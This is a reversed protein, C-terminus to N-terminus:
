KDCRLWVTETSVGGGQFEAGLELLYLGPKKLEALSIPIGEESPYYGAKLPEEKRLSAVRSGDKDLLSLSVYLERLEVGSVVIVQYSFKKDLQSPTVAVPLYVERERGGIRESTWGVVGLEPRTMRLATLVSTDWDYSSSGPPQISDMQYYLRPRLSNARLHVEQSSSSATWNLHLIPDDGTFTEFERTFSVIQLSASLDKIYVGECRNGRVRYGYPDSAASHLYPNCGQALSPRASVITGALALIIALTRHM